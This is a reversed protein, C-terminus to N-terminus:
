TGNRDDTKHIPTSDYTNVQITAKVQAVIPRGSEMTPIVKKAADVETASQTELM